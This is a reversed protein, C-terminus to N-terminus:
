FRKTLKRKSAVLTELARARASKSISTFHAGGRKVSSHQTKAGEECKLQAAEIRRKLQANKECPFFGFAM